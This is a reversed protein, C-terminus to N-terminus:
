KIAQHLYATADREIEARWGRGVYKKTSNVPGHRSMGLRFVRDTYDITVMGGYRPETYLAFDKREQSVDERTWAAPCYTSDTSTRM